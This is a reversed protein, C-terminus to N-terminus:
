NGSYQTPRVNVTHLAFPRNQLRLCAVTHQAAAAAMNIVAACLMLCAVTHQAAAAAAAMNIVAACLMAVATHQLCCVTIM